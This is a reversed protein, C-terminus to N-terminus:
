RGKPEAKRKQEEPQAARKQRRAAKRAAARRNDAGIQEVIKAGLEADLKDTLVPKPTTATM